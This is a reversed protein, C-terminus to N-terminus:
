ADRDKPVKGGWMPMPVPRTKDSEVDVAVDTDNPAEFGLEDSELQEVVKDVSVNADKPM